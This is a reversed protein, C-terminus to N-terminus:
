RSDLRHCALVGKQKCTYKEDLSSMLVQHTSDQRSELIEAKSEREAKNEELNAGGTHSLLVGAKPQLFLLKLVLNKKKKKVTLEPM